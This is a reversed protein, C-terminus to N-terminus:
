LEKEITNALSLLQPHLLKYTSFVQDKHSVYDNLLTTLQQIKSSETKIFDDYKNRKGFGNEIDNNLDKLVNKEEKITRNLLVYQKNLPKLSKRARKYDDMKKAFDNDIFDLVYTSKIRLELQMMSLRMSSITDPHANALNKEIELVKEQLGKVEELQKKQNVDSCSYALLSLCFFLTIQKKM